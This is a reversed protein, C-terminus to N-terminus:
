ASLAIGRHGERQSRFPTVVRAKLPAHLTIYHLTIYAIVVLMVFSQFVMLAGTFWILTDWAPKYELCDQWTLVGSALLVGLACMAATVPAVGLQGGFVQFLCAAPRLAIVLV